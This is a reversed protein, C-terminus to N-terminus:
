WITSASFYKLPIWLYDIGPLLISNEFFELFKALFHWDQLITKTFNYAQCALKYYFQLGLKRTFNMSIKSALIRQLAQLSSNKVPLLRRSTNHFFLLQINNDHWTRTESHICVRYNTQIDLFEKSSAPTM